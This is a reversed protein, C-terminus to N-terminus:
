AEGKGTLQWPPGSIIDAERLKDYMAIRKGDDDSAVVIPLSRREWIDRLVSPLMDRKWPEDLFSIDGNLHYTLPTSAEGEHWVGIRGLDTISLLTPSFVLPATADLGALSSITLPRTNVWLQTTAGKAVRLIQHLTVSVDANTM